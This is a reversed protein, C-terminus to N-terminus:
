NKAQFVELLWNSLATQYRSNQSTVLQFPLQCIDWEVVLPFHVQFFFALKEGDIMLGRGPALCGLPPLLSAARGM